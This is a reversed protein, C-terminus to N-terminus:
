CNVNSLIRHLDNMSTIFACLGGNERIKNLFNNQGVHVNNNKDFKWKPKKIELATFIGHIRGCECRRPTIGILDSSKFKSNLRSSDNGLGFRIPRNTKQNVFVGSNNRMLFSGYKPAQIRVESLLQAETIISRTTNM